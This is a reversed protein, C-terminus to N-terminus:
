DCEAGGLRGRIEDRREQTLAMLSPRSVRRSLVHAISNGTYLPHICIRACGTFCCKGDGSCDGDSSCQDEQEENCTLENRDQPKPCRGGKEKGTVVRLTDDLIPIDRGHLVYAEVWARAGRAGIKMM